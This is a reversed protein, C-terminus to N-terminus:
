YIVIVSNVNGEQDTETAGNRPDLIWKDDVIFKYQHRGAPLMMRLKWTVYDKRGLPVPSWDSFSGAVAVSKAQEYGELCFVANHAFCKPCHGDYSYALNAGCRPCLRRRQAYEVHNQMAANSADPWDIRAGEDVFANLHRIATDVIGRVRILERAADALRPWNRERHAPALEPFSAAMFRLYDTEFEALYDSVVRVIFSLAVTVDARGGTRATASFNALEDVIRKLSSFVYSWIEHDTNVFLVRRTSLFALLRAAQERLSRDAIQDVGVFPAAAGESVIAKARDGIEGPKIRSTGGIRDLLGQYGDPLEHCTGASLLSPIVSDRRDGAFYIPICKTNLCHQNYLHQYVWFGEWNAGLGVSPANERGEFRRRYTETCVLCVFDAREFQATMWRPWGEAPAPEFRDIWADVGSSRLQQTLSLVRAEHEASDHSYSMFVRPREPM